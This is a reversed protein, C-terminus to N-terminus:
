RKQFSLYRLDKRMMRRLCSVCGKSHKSRTLTKQVDLKKRKSQFKGSFSKSRSFPVLDGGGGLSHLVHSSLNGNIVRTKYVAWIKDVFDFTRVRSYERFNRSHKNMVVEKECFICDCKNNFPGSSLRKSRKVTIYPIFSAKQCEIEKKTLLYRVALYSMTYSLGPPCKSEQINWHNIGAAGKERIVVKDESGITKQCLPCIDCM